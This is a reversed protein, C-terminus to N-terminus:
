SVLPCAFSVRENFEVRRITVSFKWKPISRAHLPRIPPVSRISVALNPIPLASGAFRRSLRVRTPAGVGPRLTRGAGSRLIAVIMERRPRREWLVAAIGVSAHSGRGPAFPPALAPDRFPWSRKAGLAVSGCLLRSVRMRTPAGVGPRLTRGAGSRPIAVIAERRPRREWLVAAIGANAHSGRGPAFPASPASDRFPWL